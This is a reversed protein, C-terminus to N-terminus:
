VEANHFVRCWVSGNRFIVKGCIEDMSVNIQGVNFLLDVPQIHSWWTASGRQLCCLKTSVNLWREDSIGIGSIREGKEGLRNNELPRMNEMRMSFAAHLRWGNWWQERDASRISQSDDNMYEKEKLHIIIVQFFLSIHIKYFPYIPL